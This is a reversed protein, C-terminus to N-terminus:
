NLLSVSNTAHLHNKKFNDISLKLKSNQTKNKMIKQAHISKRKIFKKENKEKQSILFITKPHLLYFCNTHKSFPTKIQTEISIQNIYINTQGQM